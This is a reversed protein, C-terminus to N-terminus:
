PTQALRTIRWGNGPKAPPDVAVPLANGISATEDGDCFRTRIVRLVGGHAVILAPFPGAIDALAALVRAEFAGLSEGGPATLSRDQIWHQPGGEWDGWHREWLRPDTNIRLGLRTAVPAATNRPVGHRASM